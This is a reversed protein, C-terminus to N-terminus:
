MFIVFKSKLDPQSYLVKIDTSSPVAETIFRQLETEEIQSLVLKSIDQPTVQIEKVDVDSQFLGKICGCGASLARQPPPVVVYASVNVALIIAM